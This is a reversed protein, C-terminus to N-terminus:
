ILIKDLVKGGIDTLRKFRGEHLHTLAAQDLGLLHLITAHLDRLPIPEEAARLGFDDTAGATAGGRIGAGALWSVLGYQNHNRGPRETGEAMPARGMDSTWVLLTDELLGRAKLDKVLAAVPRDVEKIRAPLFQKIDSHHDWSYAGNEWGHVLLVFRVGKEVLRRALLCQRGFPETVADDLGYLQRISAPEEGIDVVEPAQVQMRFALEYAAIRAELDDPASRIELHRQNLWRLLDLEGRVQQRSLGPPSALHLIPDGSPRLPTGQYAAPLYGSDWVASGNVPGGRRDHLVVYGPLDRNESGLGYTVWAGVSPSGQFVSGTNVHLTAPAHNNSDVKLGHVFALDDVCTGLHEFLTCIERGSKGARAFPYPSPLIRHAGRLFAAVEGSVGPVRPLSKGALRTLTPKHDFTDIQSVGGSMFLFICRKARAVPRPPGAALATPPSGLLAGAALAGLGNYARALLARRSLRARGPGVDISM